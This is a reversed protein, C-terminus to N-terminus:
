KNITYKFINTNEVQYFISVGNQKALALAKQKASDSMDFAFVELGNKAAFVANRGEGEAPFLAKGSFTYKEFSEKVFANPAIGYAYDTEAYRADWFTKM